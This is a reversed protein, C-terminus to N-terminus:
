KQEERLIKELQKNWEEVPTIERDFDFRRERTNLAGIKAYEDFIDAISTTPIGCLILANPLDVGDYALMVAAAVFAEHSIQKSAAARILDRRIIVPKNGFTMGVYEETM